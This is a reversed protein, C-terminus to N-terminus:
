SEEAHDLAALSIRYEPNNNISKQFSMTQTVVVTCRYKERLELLLWRKSLFNFDGIIKIISRVAAYESRWGHQHEIVEGWMAVSGIVAISDYINAIAQHEAQERDKFAHYGLNAPGFEKCSAREFVGPRWRNRQM